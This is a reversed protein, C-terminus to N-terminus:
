QRRKTGTSIGVGVKKCMQGRWGGGGGTDGGGDKGGGRHGWREVTGVGVEGLTGVGLRVEGWHGREEVVRIRVEGLTGM